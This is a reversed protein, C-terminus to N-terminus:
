AKRLVLGTYANASCTCIAYQLHCYILWVKMLRQSCPECLLQLSTRKRGVNCLVRHPLCLSLSVSFRSTAAGGLMTGPRAPPGGCAKLWVLMESPMAWAATTALRANRRLMAQAQYIDLWLRRPQVPGSPACIGRVYIYIYIDHTCSTWFKDM